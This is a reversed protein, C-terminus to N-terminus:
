MEFQADRVRERGPQRRQPLQAHRWGGHQPCPLVGERRRRPQADVRHERELALGPLDVPQRWEWLGWFSVYVFIPLGMSAM